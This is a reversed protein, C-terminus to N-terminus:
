SRFGTITIGLRRRFWRLAFFGGASLVVLWSFIRFLSALTNGEIAVPPEPVKGQQIEQVRNALHGDGMQIDKLMFTWKDVPRDSAGTPATNLLELIDFGLVVQGFVVHKGNLHSAGNNGTTIFFQGGNTNPGANAMSLRGKKNHKIDFNEDAFRGKNYISYGGTGDAREFDGGQVMFDKIIRHFLSNSYGYGLELTSLQVFNEVTKPVVTGFLGVTLQGVEQEQTDSKRNVLFTLKHTVEPDDVLHLQEDSSLSLQIALGLVSVVAVYVLLIAHKLM